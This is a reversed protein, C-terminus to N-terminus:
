LSLSRIKCHAPKTKLNHRAACLLVTTLPQKFSSYYVFLLLCTTYVSLPMLFRKLLLLLIM